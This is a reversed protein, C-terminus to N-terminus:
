RASKDGSNMEVQMEGRGGEKESIRGLNQRPEKGGGGGGGSGRKKHSVVYNIIRTICVFGMHFFQKEGGEGRGM